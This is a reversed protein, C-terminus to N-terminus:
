FQVGLDPQTRLSMLDAHNKVRNKAFLLNGIDILKSFVKADSAGASTWGMEESPLIRSIAASASSTIVAPKMVSSGNVGPPSMAAGRGGNPIHRGAPDALSAVIRSGLMRFKDAASIADITLHRRRMVAAM